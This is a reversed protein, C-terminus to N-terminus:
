RENSRGMHPQAYPLWIGSGAHHFVAELAMGETLDEPRCGVVSTLLWWGEEVAMIAPAYPVRFAPHQPRWVVTWSYLTGLGSSREWALARSGCGACLVAPLSPIAHCGGCRQYSLEGERAADWYPQSAPTPTPVPIGEPQPM